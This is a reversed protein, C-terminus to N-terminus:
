PTYIFNGQQIQLAAVNIKPLEIDSNINEIRWSLKLLDPINPDKSWRYQEFRVNKIVDDGLETLGQILSSKASVFVNAQARIVGSMGTELFSDTLNDLFGGVATNGFDPDALIQTSSVVMTNFLVSNIPLGASTVRDSFIGFLLDLESVISTLSNTSTNLIRVENEANGPFDFPLLDSDLYIGNWVVEDNGEGNVTTIPPKNELEKILFDIEFQDLQSTKVNQTLATINSAAVNFQNLTLSWDAYQNIKTGAPWKPLSNWTQETVTTWSDEDQLVKGDAGKLGLTKKLQGYPSSTEGAGKQNSISRLHGEQMIGLSKNYRIATGNRFLPHESPTEIQATEIEVIRNILDNIKDEKPDEYGGIYRTSEEILYTHSKKGQKPLDYFLEQYLNFFNDTTLKDRSKAIESFGRDLLESTSAQDYHRKQLEIIEGEFPKITASIVNGGSDSEINLTSEVGLLEDNLTSPSPRLNEQTNPSYNRNNAM